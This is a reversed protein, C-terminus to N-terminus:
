QSYVQGMCIITTSDLKLSSTIRYTENWKTVPLYLIIIAEMLKPNEKKELRIQNLYYVTEHLEFFKLM